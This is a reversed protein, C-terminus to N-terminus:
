KVRSDPARFSCSRQALFIRQLYYQLHLADIRSSAAPRGQTPWLGTTCLAQTQLTKPHLLCEDEAIREGVRLERSSIVLAIRFVTFRRAGRLDSSCDATDRIRPWTEITAAMVASLTVAGACRAARQDM